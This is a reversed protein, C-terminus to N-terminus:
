RQMKNKKMSTEEERCSKCIGIAQSMKLSKEDEARCLEREYQLLEM